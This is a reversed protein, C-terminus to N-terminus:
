VAPQLEASPDPDLGPEPLALCAWHSQAAQGPHRQPATPRWVVSQGRGLEVGRGRPRPGHARRAERTTLVCLQDM